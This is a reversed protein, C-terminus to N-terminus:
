DITYWGNAGAYVLYKKEGENSLTINSGAGDINKGNRDITVDYDATSINLVQITDGITPSAPLTVTTGGAPPDVIYKGFSVAQVTTEASFTTWRATPQVKFNWVDIASGNDPATGFTITKGSITYHTTPSQVVGDIFVILNSLAYPETTVDFTTDSGDGSFSNYEAVNTTPSFSSVGLYIIYVTDSALPATTFVITAGNAGITYAVGPNQLANNKVVLIAGAGPVAYTLAFVTSTNNGVISQKQFSSYEPSAGIYHLDSM